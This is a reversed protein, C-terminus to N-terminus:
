NFARIFSFTSKKTTKKAKHMGSPNSNKYKSLYIIKEIINIKLIMTNQM